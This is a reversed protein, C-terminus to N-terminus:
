MQVRQGNSFHAKGAMPDYVLAQFTLALGKHVALVGMPAISQTGTGGSDLTMVPFVALPSLSVHVRGGSGLIPGLPSPAWSSSVLVIAEGDPHGSSEVRSVLGDQRVGNDVEPYLGGLGFAPSVVGAENHLNGCRFVPHDVLLGIGWQRPAAATPQSATAGHIEWSLNPASAAAADTSPFLPPFGPVSCYHTSQGDASWSAAAVEVGAFVTSDCSPLTVPTAFCIHIEFAVSGVCLASPPFAFPGMRTAATVDPVGSADAPRFVVHFSEPTSCDQDQSVVSLGHIRCDSGDDGLGRFMDRSFELLHEQLGSGTRATGSFTGTHINIENAPSPCLGIVVQASLSGASLVVTLLFSVRM